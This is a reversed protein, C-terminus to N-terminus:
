RIALGDAVLKGCTVRVVGDIRSKGSRTAFVGDYGGGITVAEGCLSLTLNESYDGSECYLNASSAGAHSLADLLSGFYGAQQGAAVLKFPPAAAGKISISYGFRGGSGAAKLYYTGTTQATFDILQPAAVSPSAVLNGAGDYVGLTLQNPARSDYNVALHVSDGATADFRYWTVANAAADTLGSFVDGLAVSAAQEATSHSGPQSTCPSNEGLRYLARGNRDGYTEYTFNNYVLDGCSNLALDVLQGTGGAYGLIGRSSSALRSSLQAPDWESWVVEGSDNIAAAWHPLSDTTVAVPTGSGAALKFVKGGASSGDWQVFVVDGLNNLSVTLIQSGSFLLGRVSSYIGGDTTAWIVEGRDNLALSRFGNPNGTVTLANGGIIGRIVGQATVPDFQAWVVDGLSNLAPLQHDMTDNTLRGRQSSYVQRVGSEPDMQSWVAEGLSNLSAGSLDGSALLEPCPGAGCNYSYRSLSVSYGFRGGEGAVKLFYSGTASAPFDIELPSGSAPGSLLNGQGDYLGVTLLNPARSDYSAKIRITDGASAEFRYWTVPNAAADVLDSFLDGLAIPAAQDASPHSGAHSACPSNEGLRYLKQGDVTWAKYLVDGCSNLDIEGLQVSSQLIGRTSSVLRGSPQAPDQESWIVEGGDNIAASNRNLSGSTLAVPTGSGAALKFVQQTGSSPDTQVFVIDGGNNLSVSAISSTGYFVIGRVSSYLYSTGFGDWQAWVVEGRDNLDVLGGGVLSYLSDDVTVAKGGIIGQLSLQQTVPDSQRWVVDGLSNIVPNQHDAPDSTLQGRTSSFVQHVGTAPDMQAWVAEGLANISAGSLDGSALLKPCPGAGCTSSYRSVSVAYGFRGGQGAVKLYYSGSYSAPFDIGLPQASTAGSLQNGQGDYLGITLANPARNDYNVTVHISEGAVADFKYWGVPASAPDVVGTFVDGLSVAAAQQQTGNGTAGGACPSNEGLRYLAQWQGDTGWARYVLDGCSNLDVQSIQTTPVLLGRVSSTLRSAWTAPDQEIWVLEGGDNLSVDRYFVGSAGSAVATSNGSSLKLVSQTSTTRDVQIFAVEGRNNISPNLCDANGSTLQGRVSSYVQSIGGNDQQSWVVEGHDNLDVKNIWGQPNVVFPQGGIGGRILSGTSFSNTEIWVLDGLANVAPSQHDVPDNTLQGRTSSFVQHVGTTPDVQAWVAEGLSNISAGNLDGSALQKPCPNAGCTSSYRSVSVAYGFRGGQGALKLYYSGTYTARLEITPPNSAGPGSLLNGQGDYLGITLANPARSDYNVTVHISEGAVADFKYWGVPASAPDAVGTFVDGLSVAAAQQQTGNGIAGGACPSNEGLRYLAQWQGDTGWASYVLDGCSNLDVQNIQATPVLVGRVSSSLRSTGTAPDNEVWVVEGGDNLSVDRYWVGNAGNAGNAVVTSNGASLKLVSQTSTSRDVQIFAIEGRNNISPNQCDANGSTLQGRVSSYVQSVGGNDQQNWVVEGHDNLAVKNVWGQPAIVFSQGGITGRILSGPSFSSTEIWVLDGLANVAPNQHDAPDTTLQGRMSSFVQHVGTVPDLQAWVVEGLSNLSAGSLDGSTPILQPTGGSGADALGPGALALILLLTALFRTFALFFSHM